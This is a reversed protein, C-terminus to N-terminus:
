GLRLCKGSTLKERQMRSEIEVEKKKKKKRHGANPFEWALSQVQMVATVWTTATVPLIRIGFCWLTVGNRDKSEM